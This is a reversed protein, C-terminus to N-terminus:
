QRRAKRGVLEVLPHRGVADGFRCPPEVEVSAVARASFDGAEAILQAVSKRLRHRLRRRQRLRIVRGGGGGRQGRQVGAELLGKEVQGELAGEASGLVGAVLVLSAPLEGVE